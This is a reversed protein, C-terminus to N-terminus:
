RNGFLAPLLGPFATLALWALVTGSIALGMPFDARTWSVWDPALRRVAPIRRALRHMAFAGLLFATFLSIVAPGASAPLFPALAAAYKADGAGVGAAINLVFGIALIVALNLWRWAWEGPALVVLGAVFFIAVLLLAVGNRIKMYKLDSWCVYLAVPALLCLFVLAAGQPALALM